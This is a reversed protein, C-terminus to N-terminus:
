QTDLADCTFGPRPAGLAPGKVVTSTCLNAVPSRLRQVAPLAEQTSSFDKGSKDSAFMSKHTQQWVLEALLEQKRRTSASPLLGGNTPVRRGGYQPGLGLGCGEPSPSLQGVGEQRHSRQLSSWEKTDLGQQCAQQPETSVSHVYYNLASEAVRVAAQSFGIARQCHSPGLVAM